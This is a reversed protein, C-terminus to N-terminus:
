LLLNAAPQAKVATFDRSAFHAARNPKQIANSRLNYSLYIARRSCPSINMGSAHATCCDFLTVCGAQGKPSVIGRKETLETVTENSLSPIPTTGPVAKVEYPILGDRHSEPIYAIPGNFETVEDLFIGFSLAKPEPMGDHHQWPGYDQHWPLSLHGFPEKLIVKYQHVYVAGGLVQEAISVLREDNILNQYLMSQEHMVTTGLVEGSEAILHTSLDLALIKDLEVVLADIENESFMEALFLLGDQQYQTLLVSTLPM